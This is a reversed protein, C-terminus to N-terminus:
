EDVTHKKRSREVAGRWRVMIGGSGSAAADDAGEAGGRFRSARALLGKLPAPGPFSPSLTRLFNAAGVSEGHESELAATSLAASAQCVACVTGRVFHMNQTDTHPM